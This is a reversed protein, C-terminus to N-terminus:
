ATGLGYERPDLGLTECIKIVAQREEGDFGGDSDAIAICLTVLLDPYHGRDRLRAVKEFARQESTEPGTRFAETTEEFHVLVEDIGFARMPEFSRILGAMRRHEEPKVWGDAYAVLACGSVVAEMLGVDAADEIAQRLDIRARGTRQSRRSNPM